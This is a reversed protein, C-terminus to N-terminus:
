IEHFSPHVVRDISKINAIGSLDANQYFVECPSIFLPVPFGPDNFEMGSKDCSSGCSDLSGVRCRKLAVIVKPVHLSVHWDDPVILEVGQLLNSIEFRNVGLTSLFQLLERNMIAPRRLHRLLAQTPPRYTLRAETGDSHLVNKEFNSQVRSDTISLYRPDTSQRSLLRGIVPTCFEYRLICEFVGWDNCVVELSRGVKVLADLLGTIKGLGQATVLPTVLTIERKDAHLHNICTSMLISGPLMNECSECGLYIRGQPIREAAAEEWDLWTATEM